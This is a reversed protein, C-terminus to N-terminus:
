QDPGNFRLLIARCEPCRLVEDEAAASIRSLEGRDLEIRCAGCRRGLLRCAGVGSAVRQRDYLEILDTSLAAVLVARRAQRQGRVQEIEALASDCVKQAAALESQLSDIKQLEAAQDDSLQEGREMVELLSDELDGRRRVLTDLEHQLEELRKPNVTGSALLGRDKEERQRVAEIDSEFRSVEDDLDQIALGLAALRDNAEGHDVKLQDYRQREPLNATRHTLRSLEADLEALELLLRQQAVEAKVVHRERMSM